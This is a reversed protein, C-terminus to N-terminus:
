QENQIEEVEILYRISSIIGAQYTRRLEKWRESEEKNGENEYKGAYMGTLFLNNLSVEFSALLTEKEEKTMKM